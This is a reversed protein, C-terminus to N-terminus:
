GLTIIPSAAGKKIGEGIWENVKSMLKEFNEHAVILRQYSTNTQVTSLLSDLQGELEESPSIGRSMAEQAEGRLKDMEALIKMAAEDSELAARARTVAQYEASQGMLRGIERAREELM